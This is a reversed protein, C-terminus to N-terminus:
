TGQVRREEEEIAKDIVEIGNQFSIIMKVHAETQEDQSGFSMSKIMSSRKEVLHQRAAHFTKLQNQEALPHERASQEKTDQLQM